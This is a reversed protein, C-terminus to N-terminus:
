IFERLNIVYNGFPLNLGLVRIVLKWLADYVAQNLFLLPRSLVGTMLLLIIIWRSYPAWKSYFVKVSFFLEGLVKSGDLPPIPLLNFIALGINIRASYEALLAATLVLGSDASGFKVLLGKIFVSFVAALFNVAPGALSVCIIGKKRDKYYYPNIPVPKAWGVHFVLLCIVGWFDLHRFPNFTMRGSMRPTPDGFRESVWGHAYEHCVIAFLVAPVVYLIVRLQGLLYQYYHFFM